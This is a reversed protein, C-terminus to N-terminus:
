RLAHTVPFAAAKSRDVGARRGSTIDSVGAHDVNLGNKELSVGIPAVREFVPRQRGTPARDEAGAPVTAQGDREISSSM